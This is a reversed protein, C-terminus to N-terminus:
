GAAIAIAAVILGGYASTLRFEDGHERAGGNGGSHITYEHFDM